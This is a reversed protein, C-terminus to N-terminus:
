GCVASWLLDVFGSMVVTGDYHAGDKSLKLQPLSLTFFDIVSIKEPCQMAIEDMAFKNFETLRANTVRFNDDPKLKPWAPAGYWVIAKTPHENAHRCMKSVLGHVVSSMKEYTWQGWSAPHAGFGAIVLDAKNLSSDLHELYNDWAYSMKFGISDLTANAYRVKPGRAEQMAEEVSSAGSSGASAMLADDGFMRSKISYFVSRSQSDGTVLLSRWHKRRICEIIRTKHPNSVTNETYLYPLTDTGYPLWVHDTGLLLRHRSGRMAAIPAVVRVTKPRRVWRGGATNRSKKSRCAVSADGGRHVVHKNKNHLPRHRTEDIAWADEYEWKITVDFTGERAFGFPVRYHGGGIHQAPAVFKEDGEVLIRWADPGHRRWLDSSWKPNQSLPRSQSINRAGAPSIRVEGVCLSSDYCLDIHRMSSFGHSLRKCVFANPSSSYPEVQKTPTDTEPPTTIPTEELKSVKESESMGQQQQQLHPTEGSNAVGVVTDDPVTSSPVSLYFLLVFVVAIVLIGIRTHPSLLQM